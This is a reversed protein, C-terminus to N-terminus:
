QPVSLETLTRLAGNHPTTVYRKVQRHPLAGMQKVPSSTRIAAPCTEVYQSPARQASTRITRVLNYTMCYHPPPPFPILLPMPLRIFPLM